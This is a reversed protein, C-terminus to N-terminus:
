AAQGRFLDDIEGSVNVKETLLRSKSLEAAEPVRGGTVPLCALLVEVAPGIAARTM